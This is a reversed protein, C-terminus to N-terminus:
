NRAVSNFFDVGAPEPMIYELYHGLVPVDVFCSTIFGPNVSKHPMAWGARATEAELAQWEAADAILYGLHHHKMAFGEDQPLRNMIIDSGPGSATILEYMMTGLWALLVHTEGGQPNPGGIPTFNRIGLRESLLGQAQELDNTAWAMQFHEARLLGQGADFGSGPRNLLPPRDAM